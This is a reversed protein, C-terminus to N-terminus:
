SVKWDILSDPGCEQASYQRKWGSILTKLQICPRHQILRFGSSRGYSGSSFADGGNQSAWKVLWHIVAIMMMVAMMMDLNVPLLGGYCLRFYMTMCRPRSCNSIRLLLLSDRFNVRWVRSSLGFLFGRWGMLWREGGRGMGDYYIALCYRLETIIFLVACLICDLKLIGFFLILKANTFEMVIWHSDLFFGIPIRWRWYLEYIAFQHVPVYRMTSINDTM